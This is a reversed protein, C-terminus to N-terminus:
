SGAVTGADVQVGRHSVAPVYNGRSPTDIPTARKGQASIGVNCFPHIEHTLGSRALCICKLARDMGGAM